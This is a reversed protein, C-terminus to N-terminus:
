KVRELVHYELYKNRKKSLSPIYFARALTSTSAGADLFPLSYLSQWKTSQQSYVPELTTPHLSDMDILFDCETEVDSVYRSPEDANRDNQHAPVGWTGNTSWPEYLKPLLARFESRVYKLTCGSHPLFFSAPFRYWDKGVCISVNRHAAADTNDSIGSAGSAGSTHKALRQSLFTHLPLPAGYNIVVSATRSVSLLVFTMLCFMRVLRATLPPRVANIPDSLARRNSTSSTSTSPDQSPALCTRSLLQTCCYLAVAAGLCIHPYMAYMFREEKHELCTFFTFHLFAPSLYLLGKALPLHFGTDASDSANFDDDKKKKASSDVNTGSAAFAWYTLLLLPAVAALAFAINFQLALNKFFYTWPESGYLNGGSNKDELFEGPINYLFINWNAWIWRRYLIRNILIAPTEFIALALIADRIATLLTSPKRGFVALHLGRFLLDLAMPFGVLACFPWGSVLIAAAVMFVLRSHCGTMWSAQALMFFHMSTTSPLFATGASFMGASAALFVVTHQAIQTGFARATAVCFHAECAATGMGILFRVIYFVAVKPPFEPAVINTFANVVPHLCRVIVAFAGTYSYSRLAYEPSYEWTQFGFGFSLYHTPEWYNFTEDCDGIPCLMASLFQVAAFLVFLRGFTLKADLKADTAMVVRVDTGM